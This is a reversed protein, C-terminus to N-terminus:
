KDTKGDDSPSESGGSIYEPYVLGKEKLRRAARERSERVEELTRFAFCRETEAEILIECGRSGWAFCRECQPNKSVTERKKPQRKTIPLGLIKSWRTLGGYRSIAIRLASSGWWADMEHRKPMRDLHLEEVARRLEAEITEDTWKKDIM